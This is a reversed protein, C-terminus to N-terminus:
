ERVEEYGALDLLRRATAIAEQVGEPRIEWEVEELMRLALFPPIQQLTKIRAALDEVYLDLKRHASAERQEISGAEEGFSGPVIELADWLTNLEEQHDQRILGMVSDSLQYGLGDVHAWLLELLALQRAFDEVGWDPGEMLEPRIEAPLFHLLRAAEGGTFAGGTFEALVDTNDVESLPDAAVRRLVGAAAPLVELEREEALAEVFTAEAEAVEEEALLEAFAYRIEELRPRVLIHFGDPSGFVDSLEGPRLSFAVETLEPLGRDQRVLMLGGRQRSEVDQNAQNAESWPAGEVLRGRIERARALQDRRQEDTAELGARRFAHAVARVQDGEYLSDIDEPRVRIQSGFEGARFEALIEERVENWRTELVLSETMFSDGHATRRAFAAMEVWHRVIPTVQDPELPFPQALVLFEALRDVSFTWNDVRAAVETRAGEGGSCAFIAVFGLTGLTRRM